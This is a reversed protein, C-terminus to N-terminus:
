VVARVSHFDVLERTPVIRYGAAELRRRVAAALTPANAMDGHLCISRALISLWSGDTAYVGQREALSLAREAVLEPSRAARERDLVLSGDPNYDLDIYGEQVMGIRAVRM